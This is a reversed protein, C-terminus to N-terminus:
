KNAQPLEEKDDSPWEFSIVPLQVPELGEVELGQQRQKPLSFELLKLYVNIRDRPPLEDFDKEVQSFKDELLKNVSERLSGTAKNPTGNPRGKPNGSKGKEFRGM